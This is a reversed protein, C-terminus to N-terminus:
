GTLKGIRESRHEVRAAAAAAAEGANAGAPMHQAALAAAAPSLAEADGGARVRDVVRGALDAITAGGALSMLPIEAGLRREAALKLELAMLSDMGIEALPRHRDIDA